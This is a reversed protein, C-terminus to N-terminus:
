RTPAAPIPAPVASTCATAATSTTPRGRRTRRRSCCTPTRRTTAFSSSSTAPAAPTPECRSARHLYRVGRDAAGAVDGIRDLQRLRDPRDCRRHPLGAPEDRRTTTVTAIKRAGRGGYYGLRYIDLRFPSRRRTSRSTFPTAPRMASTPPSDRFAHRRRRRGRGVRDTSQGDELERLRDRQETSRVSRRAKRARVVSPACAALVLALAAIASLLLFRRVTSLSRPSMTTTM